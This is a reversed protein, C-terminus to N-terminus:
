VRRALFQPPQVSTPSEADNATGLLDSVIQSTRPMQLQRRLLEAYSPFGSAAARLSLRRVADRGASRDEDLLLEVFEDPHMAEVGFRAPVSKPFDLAHYTVVAAAGTQVAAALAHNHRSEPLDLRAMLGQLGGGVAAEPFAADMRRRIRVVCAEIEPTRGHERIVAETWEEQILNTWAPRYLGIAALSLLLDRLAASGLVSADLVSTFNKV